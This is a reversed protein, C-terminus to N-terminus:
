SQIWDIIKESIPIVSASLSHTLTGKHDLLFKHFNWEVADQLNKERAQQILWQYLPHPDTGSIKLKQSIPFSVGYNIKCFQDIEEATGSEQGGFDNCPCGIIMLKDEFGEYLEQLQAYQPTYGCASAVNVIMIKRGRFREFDISDGRLGQISFQYISTDM